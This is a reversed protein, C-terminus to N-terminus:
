KQKGYKDPFLLMGVHQKVFQSECEGKKVCTPCHYNAWSGCERTTLPVMEIIIENDENKQHGWMQRQSLTDTRSYPRAYSILGCYYVNFGCSNNNGNLTKPDYQVIADFFKQLQEAPVEGCKITQPKESGKPKNTLTVLKPQALYQTMKHGKIINNQPM